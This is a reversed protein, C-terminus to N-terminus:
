ANEKRRIRSLQTPTIGLHSAIHYQPIRSAIDAYEAMFQQYRATADAQVLDVERADKRLLWNKELYCIQFMKLDESELLLQRFAKFDITVVTADELATVSFQSPSQTLLAAMSGPFSGEKFFNKNYETGKESISYVRLLGEYVYAFSEPILGARYLIDNQSLQLVRCFRTLQQWTNDTIPSYENMSAKLAALVIKEENM